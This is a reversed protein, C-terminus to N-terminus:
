KKAAKLFVTLNESKKIKKGVHVKETLFSGHASVIVYGTRKESGENLNLLFYGSNNTICEIQTGELTVKVGSIPQKNQKAFVTGQIYTKGTTDPKFSNDFCNFTTLNLSTDRKGQGFFNSASILLALVM